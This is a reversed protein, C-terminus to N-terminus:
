NMQVASPNPTSSFPFNNEEKGRTENRARGSGPRRPFASPHIPGSLAAAGAGHNIATPRRAVGGLSVPAGSLRRLFRRM